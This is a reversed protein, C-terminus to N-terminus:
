RKGGRGSTARKVPKSKSRKAVARKKVAITRRSNEKLSGVAPLAKARKPDKKSKPERRSGEAGSGRPSVVELKKVERIAKSRAKEKAKKKRQATNGNRSVQAALAVRGAAHSGKQTPKRIAVRSPTDDEDWEEALRSAAGPAGPVEHFAVIYGDPDIAEARLGDEDEIPVSSVQLGRSRMGDVWEYLDDSRFAVTVDQGTHPPQDAGVFRPHLVLSTEGTDFEVWDETRNHVALGVRQEYFAVSTAFQRCSLVVSEMVPEEGSPAVPPQLLAVPNGESDWFGTFRGWSFDQVDSMFDVGRKVMARRDGDIDRSLFRLAIGNRGPDPMAHLALAAGGTKFEVWGDDEHRIALGLMEAYFRRMAPLRNTFITVYLLKSM